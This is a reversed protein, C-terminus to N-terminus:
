KAKEEKEAKKDAKKEKPQQNTTNMDARFELLAKVSAFWEKCSREFIQFFTNFEADEFEVSIEDDGIAKELKGSKINIKSKAEVSEEPTISKDVLKENIESNQDEAAIIHETFDPIKEGMAEIVSQVKEMEELTNFLKPPM